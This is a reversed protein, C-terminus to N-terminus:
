HIDTGSDRENDMGRQGEGESYFGAALYITCLSVEQPKAVSATLVQPFHFVQRLTSQYMVEVM